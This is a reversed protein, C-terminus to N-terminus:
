EGKLFREVDYKKMEDEIERKRQEIQEILDETVHIFKIYTTGDVGISCGEYRLLDGIKYNGMEYISLLTNMNIPMPDTKQKKRSKFWKM